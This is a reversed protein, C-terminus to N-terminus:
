NRRSRIIEPYGALSLKLSMRCNLPHFVKELLYSIDSFLFGPDLVLPCVLPPLVDFVPPPADLVPPLLLWLKVGVPPL